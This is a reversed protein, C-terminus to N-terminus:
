PVPKGLVPGSAARPSGLPGAQDEGGAQIADLGPPRQLARHSFLYRAVGYYALLDDMLEESAASRAQPETVERMEYADLQYLRPGTRPPLVLMDQGRIFGLPETKRLMAFGEDEVRTIDRGLFSHEYTGGLLGMLTPALDTQSCVTSIRRPPALEPMFPAYILCPVRFAPADISRRKDQEAQQGHDAVLVFITNALWEPQSQRIREFFRHLAWDAYRYANVMRQRRAADSDEDVPLMGCPREPVVWPDHNSLTLIVSFFREDPGVQELVDLAKDFVAEDHFGDSFAGRTGNMSEDTYLEAIGAHSFFERMNDFEPDAGYFFMTRYGREAFVGPLTRVNGIGEDRKLLSPGMFDPHSCLLGTLGRNTRPGVAYMREFFTGERCLADFFPTHTPANGLAGVPSGAMSEMVIMVVNCDRRARGTDTRRWLPNYPNDYFTDGPQALMERAREVAIRPSPFGFLKSEEWPEIMSSWIASAVTTFNNRSLEVVL